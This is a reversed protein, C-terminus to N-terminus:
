EGDQIGFRASLKQYLAEAQEHMRECDAAEDDLDLVDLKELLLLLSQARIFKAMNLAASEQKTM